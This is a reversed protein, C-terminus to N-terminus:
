HLCLLSKHATTVTIDPTHLNPTPNYKNTIVDHLHKIFGIELEFGGKLTVRLVHSYIMGGSAMEAAYMM